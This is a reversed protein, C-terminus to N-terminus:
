LTYQGIESQPWFCTDLSKTEKERAVHQELVSQTLSINESAMSGHISSSQGRGFVRLKSATSSDVAAFLCPGSSKLMEVLTRKGKPRILEPCHLSMSRIVFSVSPSLGALTSFFYETVDAAETLMLLVRKATMSEVAFKVFDHGLAMGRESRTIPVSRYKSDPNAYHGIMLSRLASQNRSFFIAADFHLRHLEKSRSSDHSLRLFTANLRAAPALVNRVSAPSALPVHKDTLPVYFDFLRASKTNEEQDLFFQMGDLHFLAESAGRRVFADVNRVFVNPFSKFAVRLKKPAEQGPLDFLYLNKHHYFSRLFRVPDVASKMRWRIHFAVNAANEPSSLVPTSAAVSLVALLCVIWEARMPFPRFNVPCGYRPRSNSSRKSACDLISFIPQFSFRSIKGFIIVKDSFNILPLPDPHQDM